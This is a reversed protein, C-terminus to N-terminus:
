RALYNGGTAAKDRFRYVRAAKAKMNFEEGTKPRNHPLQAVQRHSGAQPRYFGMRRGTDPAQEPPSRGGEGGHAAGVPLEWPFRAGM